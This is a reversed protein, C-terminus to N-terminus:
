VLLQLRVLLGCVLNLVVPWVSVVDVRTGPLSPLLIAIFPGNHSSVPGLLAAVKM